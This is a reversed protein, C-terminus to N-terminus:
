RQVQARGGAALAPPEAAERNIRLVAAAERNIRLVAEAEALEVQVRSAM